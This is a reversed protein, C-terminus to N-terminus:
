PGAWEIVVLSMDDVFGKGGAWETLVDISRTVLQPGPTDALSVLLSQLREEEFREGDSPRAQELFGDSYLFFRDGPQLELAVDPYDGGDVARPPAATM